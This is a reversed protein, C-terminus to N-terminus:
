KNNDVEKKKRWMKEEIMFDISFVFTCFKRHRNNRSLTVIKKLCVAEEEKKIWKKKRKVM